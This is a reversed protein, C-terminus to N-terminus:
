MNLHQHNIQILEQKRNNKEYITGHQMIKEMFHSSTNKSIDSRDFITNCKKGGDYHSM